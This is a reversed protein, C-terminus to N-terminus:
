TIKRFRNTLNGLLVEIEQAVKRFRDRRYGYSIWKERSVKAKYAAVFGNM